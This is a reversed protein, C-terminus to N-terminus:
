PRPAPAAGIKKPLSIADWFQNVGLIPFFNASVREAQVNEPQGVGTISGETHRYAAMAEFSRNDRQWDLFNPYSISGKAFNPTEEFMSVIRSANKFPLPNLLVANVVSFIATNAGIGLALTIVTVATFGASKRLQRLAYRIDQALGTM